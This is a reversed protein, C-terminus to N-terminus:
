KRIKVIPTGLTASVSASKAEGIGLTGHPLRSLKDLAKEEEPTRNAVEMIVKEMDKINM